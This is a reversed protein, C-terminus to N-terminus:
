RAFVRALRALGREGVIDLWGNRHATRARGFLYALELSANRDVRLEEFSNCDLTLTVDRLRAGRLDAAALVCKWLLAGSLDAGNFHARYFNTKVAQINACDAHKFSAEAAFCDVFSAGNLNAGDLTARYLDAGEFLAGALNM